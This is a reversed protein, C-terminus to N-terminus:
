VISPMSSRRTSAQQQRALHRRSRPKRQAPFGGYILVPRLKDKPAATELILLSRLQADRNQEVLLLLRTGRHVGRRTHRISFGRIRMYDIQKAQEELLDLAERVAADCGGVTIV